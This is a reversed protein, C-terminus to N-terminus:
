SVAEAEPVPKSVAVEHDAMKERLSLRYAPTLDMYWGLFLKMREEWSMAEVAKYGDDQLKRVEGVLKALANTCSILGSESKGNGPNTKLIGAHHIIQARVARLAEHGTGALSPREDETEGVVVMNRRVPNCVACGEQASLPIRCLRCALM